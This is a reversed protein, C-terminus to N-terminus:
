VDYTYPPRDSVIADELLELRDQGWFVEGRDMAAFLPDDFLSAVTSAAEAAAVPAAVAVAVPVSVVEELSTDSETDSDALAAWMGNGASKKVSRGV